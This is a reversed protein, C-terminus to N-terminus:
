LYRYIDTENWKIKSLVSLNVFVGNWIRKKEEKRDELQTHKGAEHWVVAWEIKGHFYVWKVGLRSKLPPSSMNKCALM